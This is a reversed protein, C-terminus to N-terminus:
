REQSLDVGIPVLQEEADAETPAGKRKLSVTLVVMLAGMFVIAM